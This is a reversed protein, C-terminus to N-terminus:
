KEVEKKVINRKGDDDVSLLFVEGLSLKEERLVRNLWGENYGLERMANKNVEGDIVLFHSLTTNKDFLSIKGNQELIGYEVDGIGGFGQIRIETLVENISIRNELLVNQRLRGKYIIYLSNGEVARKVKTCRNKIASLAVEISCIFIIPVVAWLLPIDPDSIPIAAIESILLTCVLEGVELEGIQRKGMINLVVNLLIYVLITRIFISVM